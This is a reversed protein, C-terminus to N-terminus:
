GQDCKKDLEGDNCSGSNVPDDTLRTSDKGAWSELTSIADEIANIRRVNTKYAICRFARSKDRQEWLEANCPTPYRGAHLADIKLDSVLARLTHITAPKM